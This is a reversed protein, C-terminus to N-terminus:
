ASLGFALILLMGFAIAQTLEALGLRHVNLPRRARFFWQVGRFLVPAFAALALAPLLNLRWAFVLALTMAIQGFFFGRAHEFKETWGSARSAHIRVQVYHIQNGAFIANVLWLALARTDLRGTVVYYAAPATCTLGISGILQSTM